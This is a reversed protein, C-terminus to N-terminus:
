CYLNRYNSLFTYKENDSYTSQTNEFFFVRIKWFLKFPRNLDCNESVTNTNRVDKLHKVCGRNPGRCTGHIIWSRYSNQLLIDLDRAAKWGREGWRGLGWSGCVRHIGIRSTLLCSFLWNINLLTNTGSLWVCEILACVRSIIYALQFRSPKFLRAVRQPSDVIHLLGLTFHNEIM